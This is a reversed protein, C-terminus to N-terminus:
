NQGLIMQGVVATNLMSSSGSGSVIIDTNFKLFADYDIGFIYPDTIEKVEAVDKKTAFLGTLGELFKVLGKLDLFQKAM